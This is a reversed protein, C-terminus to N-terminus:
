SCILHAAVISATEARLINPSLTTLTAKCTTKLYDIEKQTFGSEPGIIFGASETTSLFKNGGPDGLYLKFSLDKIGELKHISISPLYLRKCQKLASITIKKMRLLMADSIEKIKSKEAPFFYFETIGIETGKELIFELHNKEPIAQLLVSKKEPKPEKQLSLVRISEDFLATALEGNGNVLEIKEGPRVRLVKKLHHYEEPDLEVLSDKTLSRPTYFRYM